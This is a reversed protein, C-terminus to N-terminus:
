EASVLEMLSPTVLLRGDGEAIFGLKKFKGMFVNVRSRTTGVMEAITEQSVPPLVCACPGRLDCDALVLLARALRRESLNLRQDALSAQLRSGRTVVYEFLRDRMAPEARLLAQMQAASVVLAETPTMAIASERRVSRGCLVDEGVFAGPGALGCIAEKGSRTTVALAVRGKELYLVSDASDGQNFLVARRRYTVTAFRTGASQLLSRM